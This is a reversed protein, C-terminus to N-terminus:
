RRHQLLLAFPRNQLRHFWSWVACRTEQLDGHLFANSVDLQTISWNRSLAISLILLVSAPKIVPSFTDTYDVGEIQHYGKAVLRAKYRALTGDPHRKVTFGNIESSGKDVRPTLFWYGHIITSYLM